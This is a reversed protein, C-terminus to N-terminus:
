EGESGGFLWDLADRILQSLILVQVNDRHREVFRSFAERNSRSALGSRVREVLGAVDEDDPAYTNLLYASLLQQLPDRTETMVASLVGRAEDGRSQLMLAFAYNWRVWLPRSCRPSQKMEGFFKEMAAPDQSTLYPIGLELSFRPVLRPRRERLFTELAQIKDTGARLIYANILIKVRQSGFRRRNMVEDELYAILEDWAEQELLTFVKWNHVFYANLGILIAAFAVGFPWNRAWFVGANEWGLILMPMMFIVAFSAVIVVNFVIVLVRFKM